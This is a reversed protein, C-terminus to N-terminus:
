LCAWYKPTVSFETIRSSMGQMFVAVHNFASFAQGRDYFATADAHSIHRRFMENFANIEQCASAYFRIQVEKTEHSPWEKADTGRMKSVVGYLASIIQGWEKQDIPKDPFEILRDRALARLAVEAARMLHFVSATSCEAALCNGAEKIDRAASPFASNVEPGMLSPHDVLQRCDEKVELFNRKSFNGIVTRRFTMLHATATSMDVGGRGFEVLGIKCAEACDYLGHANFLVMLSEFEAVIVSVTADAVPEGGGFSLKASALAAGNINLRDLHLFIGYINVNNVIEWLTWLRRSDDWKPTPHTLSITASHDTGAKARECV